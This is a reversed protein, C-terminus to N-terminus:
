ENPNIRSLDSHSFPTGNDWGISGLASPETRGVKKGNRDYYIRYGYTVMRGNEFKIVQKLESHGFLVTANFKIDDSM